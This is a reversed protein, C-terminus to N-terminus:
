FGTKCVYFVRLEPFEKWAPVRPNPSTALVKFARGALQSLYRAQRKTLALSNVQYHSKGYMLALTEKVPDFTPDASMVTGQKLRGLLFLEEQKFQPFSDIESSSLLNLGKLNSCSHLFYRISNESSDFVNSGVLIRQIQECWDRTMRSLSNSYLLPLIELNRFCVTDLQTRYSIGKKAYTAPIHGDFNEVTRMFVSQALKNTLFKVPYGGTAELDMKWIGIYIKVKVFRPGIVLILNEWIMEQLEVPLKPFLTFQQAAAAKLDLSLFTRSSATSSSPPSTDSSTSEPSPSHYIALGLKNLREAM